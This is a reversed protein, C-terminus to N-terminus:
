EIATTFGKPAKSPMLMKSWYNSNSNVGMLQNAEDLTIAGGQVCYLKLARWNFPDGGGM